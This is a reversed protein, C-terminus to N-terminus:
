SVVEKELSIAKPFLVNNELHVHQHLDKEFEELKAYLVRYTACADEPPCYNNSIESIHRFLEGANEHEMEMARIPNNVSHCHMEEINKGEKKAIVMERVFPFLIIEEKQLHAMLEEAIVKVLNNIELTEKHAAGHSDAVKQAYEVLLPINQQVYTHHVNLIYEVLFDIDWHLYDHHQDVKQDLSNLDIIVAEFDLQNIKCAESILKDGGCCFDIGYKKFVEATRYNKAVTAGVPNDLINM